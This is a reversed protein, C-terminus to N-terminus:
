STYAPDSHRLSASATSSNASPKADRRWISKKSVGRPKTPWRHSRTLSKEVFITPYERILINRLWYFDSFRRKVEYKFPVTHVKYVAYKKSFIGKNIIEPRTLDPNVRHGQNQTETGWEVRHAQNEETTRYHLLFGPDGCRFYM